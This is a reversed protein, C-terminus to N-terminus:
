DELKLGFMNFNDSFISMFRLCHSETLKLKACSSQM